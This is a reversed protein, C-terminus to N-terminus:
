SKTRKVHQSSLRAGGLTDWLSNGNWPKSCIDIDGDGDVDAAKAEHCRKGSLIEHQVWRIGERHSVKPAAM